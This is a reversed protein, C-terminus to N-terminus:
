TDCRRFALLVHDGLVRMGPLSRTLKDLRLLLRFLSSHKTAWSEMYSPPIGIGIATISRLEFWPAFYHKMQRVTPYHVELDVGRLQARSRGNFRRFARSFQGRVGYLLVEWLCFRSCVCLLIWAGPKVLGALQDAVDALNSICNLGAFNSFLGDFPARFALDIVRENALQHFSAPADPLNVALKQRAVEVMRASADCGVVTVGRGALHLADEGTGCNLELVRDGPLFTKDLVSWVANRQARGILSETFLADYRDALRDFALGAAPTSTTSASM